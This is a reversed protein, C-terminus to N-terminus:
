AHRESAQEPAADAALGAREALVITLASFMLTVGVIWLWEELPLGLFWWGVLHAPDYYWLGFRVALADWVWGGLLSGLVIWALGRRRRWIARGWRGWLIGLPLGIFLLLWVMYTMKGFM